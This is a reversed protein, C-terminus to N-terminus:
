TAPMQKMWPEDSHVTIGAVAVRRSELHIFFLVYYTVVGRLTLVEATFFNPGLWCRWTPEFSPQGPPRASASQHRRYVTASCCMALRKIACRTGWIPWRGPLGTMAGIM